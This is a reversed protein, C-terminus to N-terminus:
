NIVITPRQKPDMWAIMQEIETRSNLGVCGATSGTSYHVFIATGSGPGTVIPKDWNFGVVAGQRYQGTSNVVYTWMREGYTGISPSTGCQYRYRNYDVAAGSWVSCSSLQHYPLKSGLNAAQGFTEKMPYVGRPTTGDGDSRKSGDRLGNRGFSAWSSTAVNKWGCGEWQYRAWTGRSTSTAHAVLVQTSKDPTISTGPAPYVCARGFGTGNIPKLRSLNSAAQAPGTLLTLTALTTVLATTVKRM